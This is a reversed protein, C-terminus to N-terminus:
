FILCEKSQQLSKLYKKMDQNPNVRIGWEIATLNLNNKITINSGNSILHRITEPNSNNICAYHIATNGDKDKQNINIRLGLVFKIVDQNINSGSLHLITAKYDTVLRDLLGGDVISITKYYKVLAKVVPLNNFRCAFHISNWNKFSKDSIKLGKYILHNVCRKTNYQSALHLSTFNCLTKKKCNVGVSSLYRLVSLQCKKICAYHFFNMEDLDEYYLDQNNNETILKIDDIIAKSNYVDLYRKLTFDKLRKLNSKKLKFFLSDKKQIESDFYSELHNKKEISNNKLFQNELELRSNHTEIISFQKELENLKNKLYTVEITLNIKDNKLNCNEQILDSEPILYQNDLDISITKELIYSDILKNDLTTNTELTSNM